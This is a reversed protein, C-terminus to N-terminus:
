RVEYPLVYGDVPWICERFYLECLPCGIYSDSDWMVGETRWHWCNCDKHKGKIVPFGHGCEWKMEFGERGTQTFRNADQAM